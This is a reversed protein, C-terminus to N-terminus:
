VPIRPLKHGHDRVFRVSACINLIKRFSMRQRRSMEGESPMHFSFLHFRFIYVELSGLEKLIRLGPLLLGKGPSVLSALHSVPKAALSVFHLRQPRVTYIRRNITRSTSCIYRMHIIVGNTIGACSWLRGWGVLSTVHWRKDTRSGEAM